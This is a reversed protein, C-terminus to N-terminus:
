DALAHLDVAMKFNDRVSPWLEQPISQFCEYMVYKDSLGTLYRAIAAGAYGIVWDLHEDPVADLAKQREDLTQAEIVPIAYEHM